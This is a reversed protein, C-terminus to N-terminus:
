SAAQDSTKDGAAAPGRRPPLKEAAPFTAPDLLLTPNPVTDPASSLDLCSNQIMARLAPDGQVVSELPQQLLRASLEHNSLLM